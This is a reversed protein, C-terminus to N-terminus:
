KRMVKTHFIEDSTVLRIIYLGPPAKVGHLSSGDWIVTSEKVDSHGSYLNWTLRGAQDYISIDIKDCTKICYTICTNESFPNPYVTVYARQRLAEVQNASIVTDNPPTVITDNPPTVITDNPPTVITDNPPPTVTDGPVYIAGMTTRKGLEDPSGTQICPSDDQLSFDNNEPDTLKPDGFLNHNGPLNERDSISYSISIDSSTQALIEADHTGSFITNSIVSTGGTQVNGEESHYGEIGWLNSYVTNHDSYLRAHNHVQFGGDCHSIINHDAFVTSSEGVSIGYNCYSILNGSILTYLGETGIDTGDDSFFAIINEQVFSSDVHDLDIADNKSGQAIAGGRGKLQSSAIEVKKVNYAAICDEGNGTASSIINCHKVIIQNGGSAELFRRSGTVKCYQFEASANLTNIQQWPSDEVQAIFYISDAATGIAIFNGNINMTAYSALVIVVGPNVRLTVGERVTVDNQVLYPSHELTLVADITYEYPLLTQALASLCNVQWLLLFGILRVIYLRGSTIM